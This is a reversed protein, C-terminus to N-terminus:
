HIADVFPVIDLGNTSGDLNLDGLTLDCTPYATAYGAPDILALVFPPVDLVNVLGDCNLDGRRPVLAVLIGSGWEIQNNDPPTLAANFVVDGSPNISVSGGFVPSTDHQDIRAPGLDTPVLDHERVVRKLQTGDGVWIARLGTNEIARFAVIGADNIAPAFFEIDTAPGLTSRAIEVTTTGNSRYVGRGGAVLTAIFAVQGSNNVAVANDFRSYPSGPLADADQAIVISSGDAAFLRIEDPQTEGTQGAAGRRVKGAIQRANNFTPTFLFSYPSAPNLGVEAAHVATSSVGDYSIWARNTSFQARYGVQGLDNITPSGWATAGFPLNTLFGSTMSGSDYFYLGDPPAFVQEFVVKGAANISTDSIFAGDPTTYAIGGNGNSGFWVFKADSGAQVEIRFTVELHDNIRPTSNTFFTADPLNYAGSFNARAQLQYAVFQPLASAAGSCSATVLVGIFAAFFRRPM